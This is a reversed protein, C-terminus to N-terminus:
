SSTSTTGPPTNSSATRHQGVRSAIMVGLRERDAATMLQELRARAEALLRERAEASAPIYVDPTWTGTAAPDTVVHLLTLRGGFEEALVKAYGLAAASPASFDTALLIHTFRRRM